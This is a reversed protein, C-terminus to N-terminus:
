LEGVLRAQALILETNEEVYAEGRREVMTELIEREEPSRSPFRDEMCSTRM